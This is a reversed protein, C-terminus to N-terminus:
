PSSAVLCEYVGSLGDSPQQAVCDEVFVFRVAALRLATALLEGRKQEHAIFGALRFSLVAGFLGATWTPVWTMLLGDGM